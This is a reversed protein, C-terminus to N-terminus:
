LRTHKEHEPEWYRGMVAREYLGIHREYVKNMLADQICLDRVNANWATYTVGFVESTQMDLMDRYEEAEKASGYDGPTIAGLDAMMGDAVASIYLVRGRDTETLWRAVLADLASNYGEGKRQDIYRRVLGQMLNMRCWDGQANIHQMGYTLNLYETFDLHELPTRQEWHREAMDVARHAVMGYEVCAKYARDHELRFSALEPNRRAQDFWCLTWVHMDRMNTRRRHETITRIVHGVEGCTDHGERKPNLRTHRGLNKAVWSPTARLSHRTSTQVWWYGVDDLTINGRRLRRMVIQKDVPSYSSGPTIFAEFLRTLACNTWWTEALEPTLSRPISAVERELVALYGENPFRLVPEMVASAIQCVAPATSEPEEDPECEEDEAQVPTCPQLDESEQGQGEGPEVGSSFSFSGGALPTQPIEKEEIILEDNYPTTLPSPEPRLPFALPLDRTTLLPPLDTTKKEAKPELGAARLRMSRRKVPGDRRDEDQTYHLVWPVPKVQGNFDFVYCAGGLRGNRRQATHMAYKHATLWRMGAMFRRYSLGTEKLLQPKGLQYHAAHKSAAELIILAYSRAAANETDQPLVPLVRGGKTATKILVPAKTPM